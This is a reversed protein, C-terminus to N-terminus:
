VAAASGSYESRSMMVVSTSPVRLTIAAASSAPTSRATMIEEVATQELGMIQTMFKDEAIINSANPSDAYTKLMNTRKVGLDAQSQKAKMDERKWEVIVNGKPARVAGKEVLRQIIPKLIGDTAYNEQRSQVQKDWTEADEVSALKGEESGMFIRLPVDLTMAIPRLQAMIHADPDAVQMQLPNARVGQLFLARTMNQMYAGVEAKMALKNEPTIKVDADSEFSHGPFSGRMYGHCSGGTLLRHDLINMLVKQMRPTGMVPSKTKNEAIHIVRSWHVIVDKVAEKADEIKIKYTMPLGCRPSKADTDLDQIEVSTEAFARVFVLKGSTVEKDPTGSAADDFGLYLIGYRGIGSLKDVDKIASKLGINLNELLAKWDQM